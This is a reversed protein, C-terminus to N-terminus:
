ETTGGSTNEGNIYGRVLNVDKRINYDHGDAGKAKVLLFYVGDKVPTGNRTGDWAGEPDTWEYLKQGWRNLIIAKFSVISRVEKPKFTDNYGDGNPSFANPFELKSDSVTIVVVVSDLQRGAADLYTKLVVNFTGSENFTYQTDEEYRVFLEEWGGNGSSDMRRFHWEYSPTFDDMESPNARFTVDLPAQVDKISRTVQEDGNDDIYYAQADVKQAKASVTGIMLLVLLLWFPRSLQKAM